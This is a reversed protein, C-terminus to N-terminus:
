VSKTMPGHKLVLLNFASDPGSGLMVGMVQCSKWLVFIGFSVFAVVAVALLQLFIKDTLLLAVLVCVFAVIWAYM